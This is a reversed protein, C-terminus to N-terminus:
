SYDTSLLVKGFVSASHLMPLELLAEYAAEAEAFTEHITFNDHMVKKFQKKPKIEETVWALIYTENKDTEEKKIEILNMISGIIILRDGSSADLFSKTAMTVTKILGLDGSSVAIEMATSIISLFEKHEQLEDMM